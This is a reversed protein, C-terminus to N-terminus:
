ALFFELMLSASLFHWLSHLVVYGWLNEKWQCIMAAVLFLLPFRGAVWMREVGFCVTCFVGYTVACGVDLKCLLLVFKTPYSSATSSEFKSPPTITCSLDRASDSRLRDFGIRRERVPLTKTREPTKEEVVSAPLKFGHFSSCACAYAGRAARGMEQDMGTQVAHYVSSCAAITTILLAHFGHSECPFKWACASKTTLTAATLLRWALAWYFANSGALVARAWRPIRKTLNENMARFKTVDTTTVRARADGRYEWARRINRREVVGCTVADVDNARADRPPTSFM